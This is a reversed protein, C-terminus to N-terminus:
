VFTADKKFEHNDSTEKLLRECDKYVDLLITSVNDPLKKISLFLPEEALPNIVNVSEM